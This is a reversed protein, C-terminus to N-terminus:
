YLAEGYTRSDRSGMELEGLPPYNKSNFGDM